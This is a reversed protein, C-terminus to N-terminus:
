SLNKFRILNYVSCTLMSCLGFVIAHTIPASLVLVSLIMGCWFSTCYPCKLLSRVYQHLNAILILPVLVPALPYKWKGLWKCIIQPYRFATIGYYDKNMFLLKKVQHSLNSFVIEYGLVGSAIIILLIM